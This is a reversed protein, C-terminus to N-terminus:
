EKYTEIINCRQNKLWALNARKILDNEEETNIGDVIKKIVPLDSKFNGRVVNSHFQRSLWNRFLDINEVDVETIAKIWRGADAKM